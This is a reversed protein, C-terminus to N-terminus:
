GEGVFLVPNSFAYLDRISRNLYLASSTQKLLNNGQVFRIANSCLYVHSFGLPIVKKNTKMKSEYLFYQMPCYCFVVNSRKFYM